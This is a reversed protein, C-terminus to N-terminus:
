LTDSALKASHLKHANKQAIVNHVAFVPLPRHLLKFVLPEGVLLGSGLVTMTEAM